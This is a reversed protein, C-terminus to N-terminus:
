ISWVVKKLLLSNTGFTDQIKGSKYMGLSWNENKEMWNRKGIFINPTFSLVRFQKLPLEINNLHNHSENINHILTNSRFCEWVDCWLVCRGVKVSLPTYRHVKKPRVQHRHRSGPHHQLAARGSRCGGRQHPPAPVFGWPGWVARWGGQDCPWRAAPSTHSSPSSLSSFLFCSVVSATPNLTHSLM